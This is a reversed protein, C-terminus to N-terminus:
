GTISITKGHARCGVKASRQASPVTICTRPLFHSCFKIEMDLMVPKVGPVQWELTRYFSVIMGSEFFINKARSRLLQLFHSFFFWLVSSCIQNTDKLIAVNYKPKSSYHQFLHIFISLCFSMIKLFLAHTPLNSVSEQILFFM